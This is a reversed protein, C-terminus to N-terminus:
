HAFPARRLQSIARAHLGLLPTFECTISKLSLEGPLNNFQSRLRTDPKLSGAAEAAAPGIRFTRHYRHRIKRFVRRRFELVPGECLRCRHPLSRCFDNESGPYKGAQNDPVFTPFTNGSLLGSIFLLYVLVALIAGAIPSLAISVWSNALLTLDEAPLSKLRRQLGVFGGVFGVFLVALPTVVFEYHAFIAGPIGIAVLAALSWVLRNSVTRLQAIRENM